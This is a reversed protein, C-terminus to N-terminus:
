NTNPLKTRYVRVQNYQMILSDTYISVYPKENDVDSAILMYEAGQKIFYETTNLALNYGSYGKRNIAYLTGNPSPDYPAIFVADEDISYQDFLKSAHHADPNWYIEPYVLREKCREVSHAASIFVIVPLLYKLLRKVNDSLESILIRKYALILIAPALSLLCLIYYDHAEFQSYFLLFYAVGGLFLVKLFFTWKKVNKNSTPLVFLVFTSLGLIFLSIFSFYERSWAKIKIFIAVMGEWRLEWIPNIRLFFYRTDNEENYWMAYRYWIFILIFCLLIPVLESRYKLLAGKVSGDKISFWAYTLLLAIFPLTVTIKLLAALLVFILGIYFYIRKSESYFLYFFYLSIFGISLAASDPIFSIGYILYIPSTYTFLAIFFALLSNKLLGESIKYISFVGFLTITGWFIRYIIINYGFISYLKGILYYLLPFEGVAKGEGALLNHVKPELLSLGDQYFLFAMSASDMQRWFHMGWPLYDLIRLYFHLYMFILIALLALLNKVMGNVKLGKAPNLTNM